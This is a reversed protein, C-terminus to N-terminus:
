WFLLLGKQDVGTLYTSISNRCRQPTTASTWNAKEALDKVLKKIGAKQGFFNTSKDGFVQITMRNLPINENGSGTLKTYWMLYPKVAGTQSELLNLRSWADTLVLDVVHHTIVLGKGKFDPMGCDTLTVLSPYEKIFAKAVGELLTNLAKQKDTRPTWLDAHPFKSKMSKYSPYYVEVHVAKRPSIEALSSAIIKVDELLAASLSDMDNALPDDSSYANHVNRVLTRLNILLTDALPIAHKAEETEFAMSTGYSMGLEGLERM